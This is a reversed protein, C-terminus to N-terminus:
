KASTRQVNQVQSYKKLAAKIFAISPVHGDPNPKPDPVGLVYQTGTIDVAISTTEDVSVLRDSETFKGDVMYGVLAVIRGQKGIEPILAVAWDEIFIQKAM